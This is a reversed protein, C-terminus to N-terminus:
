SQITMKCSMGGDSNVSSWLEMMVAYTSAQHAEVDSADLTWCYALSVSTRFAIRSPFDLFSAPSLSRHYCPPSFNHMYHM